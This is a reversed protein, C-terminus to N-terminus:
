GVYHWTSESVPNPFEALIKPEESLFKCVQVAVVPLEYLRELLPRYLENIQSFANACQSLKCEFVLVCDMRLVYFDPQAYGRGCADRFYIWRGAQVNPYIRRLAKAV